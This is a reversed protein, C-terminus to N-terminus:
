AVWESERRRRVWTRSNTMDERDRWMGIFPEDALKIRKARRTREMPPYRNKLFAVFDLVQRQAEPPLFMIDRLLTTADM